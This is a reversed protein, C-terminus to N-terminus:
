SATASDTREESRLAPDTKKGYSKSLELDGADVLMVGLTQLDRCFEVECAGHPYGESPEYAMLVTGSQGKVITEASGIGSKNPLDKKAKVVDFEKFM